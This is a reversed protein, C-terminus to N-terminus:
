PYQSIDRGDVARNGIISSIVLVSIFIGTWDRSSPATAVLEQLWSSLPLVGCRLARVCIHYKARWSRLWAPPCLIHAATSLTNDLWLFHSRPCQAGGLVVDPWSVELQDRYEYRSRRWGEVGGAHMIVGPWHPHCVYGEVSHAYRCQPQSSTLEHGSM